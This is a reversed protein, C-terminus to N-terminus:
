NRQKSINNKDAIVETFRSLSPQNIAVSGNSSIKVRSLETLIPDLTCKAAHETAVQVANGTSSMAQGSTRYRKEMNMLFNFMVVIYVVAIVVITINFTKEIEM